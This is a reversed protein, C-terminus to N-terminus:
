EVAFSLLEVPVTMIYRALGFDSPFTGTIVAGATLVLDPGAVAVARCEDTTGGPFGTRLFGATGFSPDLAGDPQFRALLFDHAGTDNTFGALLLKGNPLRILQEGIESAGSDATALGGTGFTTDVTGGPLYRVLAFDAASGQERYGGLLIRGDGLVVVSSGSESAGFDSIVIGDGDFTPDPSGNPLLRVLAFDAGFAGAILIKGDPQLAVDRVAFPSFQPLLLQGASGFTLDLSGNTNYRAAAITGSSFGLFGVAVIRGDPQLLGGSGTVNTGFSTTVRGATGFSPDLSGDPELRALAFQRPPAQFAVDGVLVLRGDAQPLVSYATAGMDFQGPPPEFYVIVQGGNGFSTDLAGSVLYRAVAMYQLEIVPHAYGAGVARGDPLVVLSLAKDDSFPFMFNTTVLGGNGFSPDLMGDAGAGTVGFLPVLLLLVLVRDRM